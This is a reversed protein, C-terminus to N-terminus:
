GATEWLYVGDRWVYRGSDDVVPVGPPEGSVVRSSGGDRPGGVFTVTVGTHHRPAPRADLAPSDERRYDDYEEDPRFPSSRVQRGTL